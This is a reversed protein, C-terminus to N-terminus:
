KDKLNEILQMLALAVQQPQEAPLMHGSQDILIKKANQLLDALEDTLHPPTIRDQQGCMVAIPISLKALAPRHDLRAMVARTQRIGTEAGVSLMMDRLKLILQPSPAHTSWQCIGDVVKGFDHQMNQMTKERAALGAAAEPRGSTSILAAAAVARASPSEHALMHLVVYGGLSFGVLVVPAGTPIDHLQAWAAQAMEAIRDHALVPMTRIDAVAKSLPAVEDWLSADNLTGQILLLTPKMM